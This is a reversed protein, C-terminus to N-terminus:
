GEQESQQNTGHQYRPRQYQPVHQQLPESLANPDQDLLDEDRTGRRGWLDGAIVFM